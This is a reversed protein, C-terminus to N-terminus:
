INYKSTGGAIKSLTKIREPDKRKEKKKAFYIQLTRMKRKTDTISTRSRRSHGDNKQNM